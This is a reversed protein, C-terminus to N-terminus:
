PKYYLVQNTRVAPRAEGGPILVGGHYPVVTTTVPAILPTKNETGEDSSIFSPVSDSLVWKNEKVLYTYVHRSFGPHRDRLDADALEGTDGSLFMFKGPSIEVGPNAVATIAQPVDAIKSWSDGNYRYGDRLYTRKGKELSAGSFLFVGDENAAAAALIRGQGPFAPLEKWGKQPDSLDLRFVRNLAQQATPSEQGGLVYWYNEHQAFAVNALPVPLPALTIIKLQDQQFSLAYTQAFHQSADSGGAIFFKGQYSASAGYGLAQPLQGIEQWNAAPDKLYYIQNTWVKVGGDWPPIGQQFQAGGLYVIGSELNGAFSGAFGLSDPIPSLLNWKKDQSQANLQMM